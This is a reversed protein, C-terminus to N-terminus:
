NAICAHITHVGGNPPKLSTALENSSTSRNISTTVVSLVQCICAQVYNLLHHAMKKKHTTYKSINLPKVFCPSHYKYM